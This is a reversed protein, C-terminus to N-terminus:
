YTVYSIDAKFIHVDRSCMENEDILSGVIAVFVVRMFGSVASSIQMSCKCTTMESKLNGLLNM